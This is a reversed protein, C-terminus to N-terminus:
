GLLVFGMAGTSGISGIGIGSLFEVGIGLGFGFGFGFLKTSTSCYLEDGIPMMIPTTTPIKTMPTIVTNKIWRYVFM